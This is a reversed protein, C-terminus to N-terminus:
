DAAKMSQQDQSVKCCDDKPNAIKQPILMEKKQQGTM